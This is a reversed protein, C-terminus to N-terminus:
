RDPKGSFTKGLVTEVFIKVLKPDFHSGSCRLLEDVADQEPVASRYPRDSTMADYADVITIMRAQLSIEEGKLGKPYGKGDVKEHHELVYEAIKSFENVSSLIRYGIEAHRQIENWENSDLSFDKDLISDEIGIKGIDHMLGAMKIENIEDITFDMKKAFTECMESVRKTHEMERHNKEFLTNLILDITRSRMSSSEFLKHRYMTDEAMIFIDDMDEQMSYKIAHGISVSVIVNNVKEDAALSAIKQIFQKVYEDTTSPLLIVFEDGGIRAVIDELRCASRLINAVTVLLNDGVKHGFADNTLKLGNVDVMVLALPLFQERDLREIVAEYYRRNFLGTLQDHYSLHEIEDLRKKKESYDRFVLVVGAIEGNDQRIPAASDEIPIERKDKSILLTRSPIELVEGTFLVKQVISECRERTNEGIVYFVEEIPREKAQAFTWGTLTEAVKNILTIKGMCDTCIVADGVSLLTTELLNREQSLDNELVKRLTVDEVVVAFQNKKPSFISTSFYKGIQASYNEMECPQGTLAVKGYTDIWYKETNPLVELVTKGLVEEKKLGTMDEFSKNIDIFRYDIPVGNQDCIIEHVALGLQMQTVLLRYQEESSKILQHITYREMAMSFSDVFLQLISKETRTWEREIRCEDFGIFGKFSGNAFFPLALMSKVRRSTLLAKPPGEPLASVHIMVPEKRSLTSWFLLLQDSPIEEMDYVETQSKFIGQCWQMSQSMTGGSADATISMEILYVRCVDLAEGLQSFANKAVEMYDQTKIFNQAITNILMLLKDKKANETVDLMVTLLKSHNEASLLEGSFVGKITKGSKTVAEIEFDSFRGDKELVQLAPTKKSDNAFIGIESPSRGIIEERAYEFKALFAENVDLYKGTHIDSIAMVAPNRFFSKKFKDETEQLLTVDRSIGFVVTQDNWYGLWVRTEVPIQAGTKKQLPFNCSTEEERVIKSFVEQAEQHVQKPHFDLIHMGALEEETYLLHKKVASNVFIVEGSQSAIFVCDDISNFFTEMLHAATKETTIDLLTYSMYERKADFDIKLIDFWKSNQGQAIFMPEKSEEFAHLDAFFDEFEKQQAGLFQQMAANKAILRKKADLLFAPDSKKAYVNEWHDIQLDFMDNRIGNIAFMSAVIMITAPVADVYKDLGALIYIVSLWPVQFTVLLFLYTRKYRELTAAKYAKTLAFSSIIIFAIYYLLMCYYIPGKQTLLTVGYEGLYADIKIYFLHHYFDTLHLLWLTFSIAYLFIKFNKRIECIGTMQMIFLIGVTPISVIGLVEFNRVWFLATPNMASMELFYGFSYFSCSFMLLSFYNVKRKKKHKLLQTGVIYYIISFIPILNKAFQIILSKIDM